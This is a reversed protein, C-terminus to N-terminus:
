QQSEPPVVAEPPRECGGLVHGGMRYALEDPCTAVRVERWAVDFSLQRGSGLVARVAKLSTIPSLIIRVAILGVHRTHWQGGLGQAPNEAMMRIALHCRHPIAANMEIKLCAKPNNASGSNEEALEAASLRTGGYSAAAV